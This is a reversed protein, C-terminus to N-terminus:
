VFCALILLSAVVVSIVVFADAVAVVGAVSVVVACGVLRSTMMGVLLYCMCCAGGHSVRSTAHCMHLAPVCAELSASCDVVVTIPM